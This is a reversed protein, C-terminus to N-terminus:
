IYVYPWQKNISGARWRIIYEILDVHEALESGYSGLLL